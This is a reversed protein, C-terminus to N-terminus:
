PAAEFRPLRGPEFAIAGRETAVRVCAASIEIRAAAPARTATGLRFVSVLRRPLPGHGADLRLATGPALMGYRPAHWGPDCPQAPRLLAVSEISGALQVQLTREGLRLSGGHLDLEGETAPLQFWAEVRREGPGLVDDCIALLEGARWAIARRVRPLGRAPHEAAACLSAADGAFGLWRAPQEGAIGFRQSSVDAQDRGDLVVCAHAKTGRLAARWGDRESYLYTGPDILVDQGGCRWVLSLADAHMHSRLVDPRFRTPGARFLLLEAGADFGSRAIGLGAAGFRRACGPPPADGAGPIRRGGTLWFAGAADGAIAGWDRREFAVAAAGLLDRRDLPDGGLRWARGADTDGIAPLTGDDRLWCSLADAMRGIRARVAAPARVGVREALLLVAVLSDLVFGHYHTSHEGHAGEVDVQKAVERWLVRLGTRRWRAAPALTPLALGLVALGAAESILHNHTHPFDALHSEVYEGHALLEALWLGLAREEFGDQAHALHLAWLWAVARLAVEQAHEWAVGRGPPNAAAFDFGLEVVGRAYRADRTCWAAQAVRVLQTCRGLEWNLRVDGLPREAAIGTDGAAALPWRGPGPLAAHWDARGGPVIWSWDGRLTADAESVIRELAQPHRAAFAERLQADGADFFFPGGALAARLQAPAHGALGSELTAPDCPLSEWRHRWAARAREAGARQLRFRARRALGGLGVEGVRRL